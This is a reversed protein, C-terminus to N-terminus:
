RKGEERMRKMKRKNNWEEKRMYGEEVNFKEM